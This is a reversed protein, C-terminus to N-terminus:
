TRTPAPMASVPLSLGISPHPRQLGELPEGKERLAHSSCRQRSHGCGRHPLRLVTGREPLVHQALGAEAEPDDVAGLLRAKRCLAHQQAPRAGVAKDAVDAARRHFQGLQLVALHAFAHGRGEAGQPKEADLAPLDARRLAM